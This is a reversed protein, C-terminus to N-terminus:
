KRNYSGSMMQTSYRCMMGRKALVHKGSRVFDLRSVDVRGLYFARKGLLYVPKKSFKILQGILRTRDQVTM